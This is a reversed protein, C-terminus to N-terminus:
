PQLCSHTHRSLDRACAQRLSCPFHVGLIFERDLPQEINLKEFIYWELFWTSKIVATVSFICGVKVRQEIESSCWPYFYHSLKTRLPGISLVVRGGPCRYPSLGSIYSWGSIVEMPLPLHKGLSLTLCHEQRRCVQPCLFACVWLFM